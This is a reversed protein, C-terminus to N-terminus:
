RRHVSGRRRPHDARSSSANASSNSNVPSGDRRQGLRCDAENRFCTAPRQHREVRSRRTRDQVLRRQGVPQRRRGLRLRDHHVQRKGRGPGTNGQRTGGVTYATPRVPALRITSRSAMAAARYEDFVSSSLRVAPRLHLAHGPARFSTGYSGRVLLNSFPRWELGAAWTAAGDVHPSTTTRDYRGALNLKLTELVPVSFEVGLAYRDREGGGGTGTLNYVREPGTYGPVPHPRRAAPRVGAFCSRHRGGDLGAGAPLEFLDGSITFAGQTVSSSPM